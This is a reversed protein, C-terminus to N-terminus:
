RTVKRHSNRSFSVVTAIAQWRKASRTRTGPQPSSAGHSEEDTPRSGYDKSPRSLRAKLEQRMHEISFLTPDALFDTPKFGLQLVTVVVVIFKYAVCM